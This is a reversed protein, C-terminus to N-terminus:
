NELLKGGILKALQDVEQKKIKKGKLNEVFVVDSTIYKNLGYRKIASEISDYTATKLQHYKKFKSALEHKDVVGNKLYKELIELKEPTWVKAM